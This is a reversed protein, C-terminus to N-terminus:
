ARKWSHDLKGSWKIRISIGDQGAQAFYSPCMIQRGGVPGGHGQFGEGIFSCLTNQLREPWTKRLNSGGIGEAGGGGSCLSDGVNEAPVYSQWLGDAPKSLGLPAGCHSGRGTCDGGGFKFEDAWLSRACLCHDMKIPIHSLDTIRRIQRVIELGYADMEAKTPAMPDSFPNPFAEYMGKVIGGECVGAQLAKGDLNPDITVGNFKPWNPNPAHSVATTLRSWDAQDPTFQEANPDRQVASIQVHKGAIGVTGTAVTEPQAQTKPATVTTQPQSQTEPAPAPNQPQSPASPVREDQNSPSPAVEPQAQPNGISALPVCKGATRKQLRGNVAAGSVSQDTLLMFLVLSTVSIRNFM